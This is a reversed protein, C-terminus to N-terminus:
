FLVFFLFLFSSFLLIPGWGSCSRVQGSSAVFSAISPQDRSSIVCQIAPPGALTWLNCVCLCGILSCGECECVSGDAEDCEFKQNDCCGPGSVEGDVDTTEEKWWENGRGGKKDQLQETNM